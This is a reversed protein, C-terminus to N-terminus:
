LGSQRFLQGCFWINKLLLMYKPWGIIFSDFCFYASLCAKIRLGWFNFTIELEYVFGFWYDCGGHLRVRHCRCYVSAIGQNLRLYLRWFWHLSLRRYIKTVVVLFAVLLVKAFAILLKTNQKRVFVPDFHSTEKSFLDYINTKNQISNVM